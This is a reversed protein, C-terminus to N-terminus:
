RGGRTWICALHLDWQMKNSTHMSKILALFGKCAEMSNPRFTTRATLWLVDSTSVFLFEFTHDYIGHGSYLTGPVVCQIWVPLWVSHAVAACLVGIQSSLYRFSHEIFTRRWRTWDKCKHKNFDDFYELSIYLYLSYFSFLVMFSSMVCISYCKTCILLTHNCSLPSIIVFLM